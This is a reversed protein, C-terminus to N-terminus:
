FNYKGKRSLIYSYLSEFSVPDSLFISYSNTFSSITPGQYGGPLCPTVHNNVVVVRFYGGKYGIFSNTNGCHGGATEANILIPPNGQLVLENRLSGNNNAWGSDKLTSVTGEPDDYNLRNLEQTGSWLKGNMIFDGSITGLDISKSKTAKGISYILRGIDSASATSISEMQWAIKPDLPNVDLTLSPNIPNGERTTVIIASSSSNYNLPAQSIVSTTTIPLTNNHYVKKASTNLYHIILTSLLIVFILSVIGVIVVRKNYKFKNGKEDVSSTNSDSLPPNVSQSEMDYKSRIITNFDLSFFNFINCEM